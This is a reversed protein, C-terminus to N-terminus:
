WEVVESARDAFTLKVAVSSRGAKGLIDAVTRVALDPKNCQSSLHALFVARLDPSAVEVLLEGAQRNSLHGQRGLIRQKLTWPRDAGRLLDEDHNSEIVIVHCGKLRERVLGTAMGIDTVVGLRACGDSITFGVPDFADHPVSFPEIRLSGIAFPSGTTFINWKLGSVKGVKEIAEVTGSNAYLATGSKRSLVSLSTCHDDHEHTLCVAAVTEAAAGVTELRKLTERGSLGADVLLSTGASSVFTCNGSSGSGLVCVKM